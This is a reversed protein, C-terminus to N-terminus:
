KGGMIKNFLYNEFAKNNRQNYYFDSDLKGLYWKVLINDINEPFECHSGNKKNCDILTNLQVEIENLLRNRRIPHEKTREYLSLLNRSFLFGLERYKKLIVKDEETYFPEEKGNFSIKMNIFDERMNSNYEKQMYLDAFYYQQPTWDKSMVNM